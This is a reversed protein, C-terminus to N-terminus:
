KIKSSLKGKQMKESRQNFKNKSQLIEVSLIYASSMPPPRNQSAKMSDQKTVSVGM